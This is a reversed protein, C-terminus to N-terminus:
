EVFLDLGNMYKHFDVFYLLQPTYFKDLPDVTGIDYCILSLYHISYLKIANLIHIKSEM